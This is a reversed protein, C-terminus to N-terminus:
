EIYRRRGFYTEVYGSARANDLLDDYYARVTPYKAFFTEIYTNGEAPSAGIM